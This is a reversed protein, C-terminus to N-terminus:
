VYDYDIGMLEDLIKATDVPKLVPKLTSATSAAAAISPPLPLLLPYLWLQWDTELQFFRNNAPHQILLRTLTELGGICMDPITVSLVTFLLPLVSKEAILNGTAFDGPTSTPAPPASVSSSSSPQPSVPPEDSSSVFTQRTDALPRSAAIFGPQDLRGMLIEFLAELPGRQLSHRQSHLRCVSVICQTLLPMSFIREQLPVDLGLFSHVLDSAKPCAMLLPYKRHSTIDKFFLDLQERRLKVVDEKVEHRSMTRPPLPLLELKHAHTLEKILSDRWPLLHRYRKRIFWKKGAADVRIVYLAYRPVGITVCWV